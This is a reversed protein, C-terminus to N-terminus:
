LRKKLYYFKISTYPKFKNMHFTIYLSNLLFSWLSSTYMYFVVTFMAAKVCVGSVCCIYQMYVAYLIFIIFITIYIIFLFVCRCMWVVIYLWTVANFHMFDHQYPGSTWPLTWMSWWWFPSFHSRLSEHDWRYKIKPTLHVPKLIEILVSTPNECLSLKSLATCSLVTSLTLTLTVYYYYWM